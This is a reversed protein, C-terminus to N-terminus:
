INYSLTKGTEADKYELQKFEPLVDRIMSQLTSDGSKDIVPGGGPTGLQPGGPKGGSKEKEMNGSGSKGTCSAEIVLSCLMLMPLLVLTQIRRFRM